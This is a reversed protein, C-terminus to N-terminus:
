ALRRMANYLLVIHEPANPKLVIDVRGRCVELVPRKTQPDLYPRGEQNLAVQLIEGHEEDASVCWQLKKDDLFIWVYRYVPSNRITIKM